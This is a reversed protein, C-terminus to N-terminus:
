DSVLVVNKAKFNMLWICRKVPGMIPSEITTGFVSTVEPSASCLLVCLFGLAMAEGSGQWHSVRGQM